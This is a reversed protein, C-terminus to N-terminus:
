AAFHFQQNQYLISQNLFCLVFQFVFVVDDWFCRIRSLISGRDKEVALKYYNIGTFWMYIMLIRQNYDSRTNETRFHQIEASSFSRSELKVVTVVIHRLSLNERRQLLAFAQQSNFFNWLIQRIAFVSDDEVLEAIQLSIKFLKQCKNCYNRLAWYQWSFTLSHKCKYIGSLKRLSTFFM